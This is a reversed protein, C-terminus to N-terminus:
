MAIDSLGLALQEGKKGGKGKPDRLPRRPVDPLERVRQRVLAPDLRLVSCWFSLAGHGIEEFWLRAGARGSKADDIALKLLSVALAHEPHYDGGALAFLDDNGSHEMRPAKLSEDEHESLLGRDIFDANKIARM